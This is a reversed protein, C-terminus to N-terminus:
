PKDHKRFLREFGELFIAVFIAVIYIIYPCGFLLIAWLYSWGWGQAAGKVGAILGVIPIYTLLIAILIAFYAGVGFWIEIGKVIAFAQVFGIIFYIIMGFIVAIKM